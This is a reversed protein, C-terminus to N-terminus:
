DREESTEVRNACGGSKRAHTEVRCVSDERERRDRNGNVTSGSVSCLLAIWGLGRIERNIKSLRSKGGRTSRLGTSLLLYGRSLSVYLLWSSVCTGGRERERKALQNFAVREELRSLLSVVRNSLSSFLSLRLLLSASVYPYMWMQWM